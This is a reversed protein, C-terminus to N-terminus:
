DRITKGAPLRKARGFPAPRKSAVGYGFGGRGSADPGGAGDDECESMFLYRLLDVPDKCAGKEGDAGTWNELAYIM